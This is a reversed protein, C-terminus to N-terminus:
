RGFESVGKEIEQKAKQVFKGPAQLISQIATRKVINSISNINGDRYIHNGIANATPSDLKEPVVKIEHMKGDKGPLYLTTILNEKKSIDQLNKLAQETLKNLQVDTMRSIEQESKGTIESLTVVKENGGSAAIMREDLSKRNSM